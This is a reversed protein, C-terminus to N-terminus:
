VTLQSLLNEITDNNGEFEWFGGINKLNNTHYHQEKALAEVDVTELIQTSFTSLFDVAKHTSMLEGLLNEVKALWVEDEIEVITKILHFKKQLGIETLLM